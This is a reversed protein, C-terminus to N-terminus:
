EGCKFPLNFSKTSGSKLKATVTLPACVRDYVLMAKVVKGEPGFLIGTFAKDAVKLKRRDNMAVTVTLAADKDFAESQGKVVVSVLFSNAPEKAGGEGIMTNRLVLDKRKTLDDSLTGSYEYFLQVRIDEIAATQAAATLGSM